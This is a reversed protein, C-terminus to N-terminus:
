RKTDHLTKAYQRAALFKLLIYKADNEPHHDRKVIGKFLPKIHEKVKSELIHWEDGDTIGFIGSIFSDLEVCGASRYKENRNYNLPEFNFKVLESCVFVTDFSTTDTLLIASSYMEECAKLIANIQEVFAKRGVVINVTKSSQLRDLMNTHKSWIENWCRIEYGQQVWFDHWSLEEPKQLDRAVSFTKIQNFDTENIACTAFGIAFVPDVDVSFKGVKEIDFAIVGQPLTSAAM